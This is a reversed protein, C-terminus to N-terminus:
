VEYEVRDNFEAQKGPHWQQVPRIYGVVRSYVECEQYGTLAPSKEFCPDCKYIFIDEKGDNYKLLKAGILEEGKVEIEKSCDYCKM